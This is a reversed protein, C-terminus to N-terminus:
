IEKRKNSRYPRPFSSPYIETIFTEPREEEDMKEGRDMLPSTAPFSGYPAPIPKLAFSVKLNTDSVNM